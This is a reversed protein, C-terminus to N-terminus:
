GVLQRQIDDLLAKIGVGPVDIREVEGITIIPAVDVVTAADIEYVTEQFGGVDKAVPFDSFSPHARAAGQHVRELRNLTGTKNRHNDGLLFVNVRGQLLEKRRLWYRRFCRASMFGISVTPRSFAISWIKRIASRKPRSGM